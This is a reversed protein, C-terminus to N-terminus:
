PRVSGRNLEIGGHPRRNPLVSLPNIAISFVGIPRLYNLQFFDGDVSM